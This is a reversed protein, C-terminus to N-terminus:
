SAGRMSLVAPLTRLLLHFDKRLSWTQAYELDLKMWDEFPIDNRGSVQWICTLGPLVSLRRRQWPEYKAVEHPVPPRPGVLSMDGRLVNFLQPLEDLSTRRLFRGVRTMRPDNRIKFVPGSAENRHALKEQLRDAGDVM